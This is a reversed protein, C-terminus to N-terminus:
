GSGREAFRTANKRSRCTMLPKPPVGSLADYRFREVGDPAGAGRLWAVTWADKVFLDAIFERNGPNLFYSWHIGRGYAAEGSLRYGGLRDFWRRFQEASNRDKLDLQFDIWNDLRKVGDFGIVRSVMSNNPRQSGGLEAAGWDLVGDSRNAFSYFDTEVGRAMQLADVSYEAGGLMVARRVTAQGGPAAAALALAQVAVRTGLSHALIDVTLGADVLARLVAALAKAAQPALDQVAYEYPNSWCAAAYDFFGPDSTWAFGIAADPGVMPVWSEIQRDAPLDDPLAFISRYPDDDFEARAPDAQGWRYGHVLVVVRGSGREAVWDTVAGALAASPLPAASEGKPLPQVETEQASTRQYLRDVAAAYGAADPAGAHQARWVFRLM